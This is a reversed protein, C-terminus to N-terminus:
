ILLHLPFACIADDYVSVNMPVNFTAFCEFVRSLTPYGTGVKFLRADDILIIPEIQGSNRISNLEALIPSIDTGIATDGGSYHGDLWFLVRGSIENCITSLETASDGLRLHIQPFGECRHVSYKYLEGSLEVSFIQKFDDKLAWVMDGRCTGTEVLVSTDFMRSMRRLNAQKM